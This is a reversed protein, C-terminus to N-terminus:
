APAGSTVVQVEAAIARAREPPLKKVGTDPPPGMAGEEYMHWRDLSARHEVAASRTVEAVRVVERGGAV